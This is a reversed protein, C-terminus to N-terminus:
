TTPHPSTQIIRWLTGGKVMVMDNKRKESKEKIPLYAIKQKSVCVGFM